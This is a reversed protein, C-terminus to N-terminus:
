FSGKKHCISDLTWRSTEMEKSDVDNSSLDGRSHLYSDDPINELLLHSFVDESFSPLFFGKQSMHQRIDM